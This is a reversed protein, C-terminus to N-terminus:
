LPNIYGSKHLVAVNSWNAGGSSLRSSGAKKCEKIFLAQAEVDTEAEFSFICPWDQGYRDHRPVSVCYRVM